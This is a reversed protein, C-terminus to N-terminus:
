TAACATASRRRRRPLQELMRMVACGKQYTIVDFMEIRKARADEVDTWIPHTTPLADDILARNKDAQFDNWVLYSPRRDHADGQPGDVRRLGRQAVPRGVLKMTVLNGFWM